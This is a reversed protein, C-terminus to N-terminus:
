GKCIADVNHKGYRIGKGHISNVQITVLEKNQSHKITTLEFSLESKEDV